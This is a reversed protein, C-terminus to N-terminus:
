KNLLPNMLGEAQLAYDIFFTRKEGTRSLFTQRYIIRITKQEIPKEM